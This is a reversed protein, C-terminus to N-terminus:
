FSKNLFKLFFLDLLINSSGHRLDFDIKKLGCVESIRLGCFLAILSGMFVQLDDIADFLQILQKKNLVNPLKRGREKVHTTRVALKKNKKLM